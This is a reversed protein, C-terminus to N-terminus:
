AYIDLTHFHSPPLLHIQLNLDVVFYKKGTGLICFCQALRAANQNNTENPSGKLREEVFNAHLWYDNADSRNEMRCRRCRLRYQLKKHGCNKLYKWFWM